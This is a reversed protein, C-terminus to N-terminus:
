IIDSFKPNEFFYVMGIVAYASMLMSGELWNSYGDQLIGTIIMVSILLIMIEFTHLDLTMPQGCLWGILVTVPTVFLLMQCSSGVACGLSLDM